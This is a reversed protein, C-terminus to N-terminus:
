VSVHLLKLIDSLPVATLQQWKLGLANEMSSYDVSPLSFHDAMLAGLVTSSFGATWTSSVNLGLDVILDSVMKSSRAHTVKM